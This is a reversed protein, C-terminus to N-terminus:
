LGFFPGHDLLVSLQWMHTENSQPLAKLHTKAVSPPTSACDSGLSPQANLLRAHALKPWGHRGLNPDADFMPIGKPEMELNLSVLRFDLWKAPQRAKFYDKSLWGCPAPCQPGSTRSILRLAQTQRSAPLANARILNKGAAKACWSRQCPTGKAGDEAGIRDDLMGANGLRLLWM